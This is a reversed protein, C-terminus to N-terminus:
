FIHFTVQTESVYNDCYKVYSQTTKIRENQYYQSSHENEMSYKYCQGQM